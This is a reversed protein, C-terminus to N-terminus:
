YGAHKKQKRKSALYVIVAALGLSGYTLPLLLSPVFLLVVGTTVGIGSALIHKSGM